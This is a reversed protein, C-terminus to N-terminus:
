DFLRRRCIDQQVDSLDLAGSTIGGVPSTGDPPLPLGGFLLAIPKQLMPRPDIEKLVERFQGAMIPDRMMAFYYGLREQWAAFQDSAVIQSASYSKLGFASTIDAVADRMGAAALDPWKAPLKTLDSIGLADAVRQLVAAATCLPM